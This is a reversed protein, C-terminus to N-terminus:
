DGLKLRELLEDKGVSVGPLTPWANLGDDEFRPILHFHIHLVSQQATEGSAHLLNVGSSGIRERYHLALRQGMEMMIGLDESSAAYIDQVHRIPAIVTHGYSEIEKPLFCIVQSDRYVIWSPIAGSVLDCIPCRKM